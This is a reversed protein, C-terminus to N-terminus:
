NRLPNDLRKAEYNVVLNPLMKLGHAELHSSLAIPVVVAVNDMADVEMEVEDPYDDPLPIDKESGDEQKIAYRLVARVKM